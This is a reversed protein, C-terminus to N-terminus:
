YCKDLNLILIPATSTTEFCKSLVNKNFNYFVIEKRLLKIM